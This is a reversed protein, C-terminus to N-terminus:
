PERKRTWPRRLRLSSCPALRAIAQADLKDTKALKGSARAFERIRRANIVAVPLGAAQLAIVLAVEYGGTPEMVIL